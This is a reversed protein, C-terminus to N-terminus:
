GSRLTPYKITIKIWVQHATNMPSTKNRERDAIERGAVILRTAPTKGSFLRVIPTEICENTLRIGIARAKTRNNPPMLRRSPHCRRPLIRM